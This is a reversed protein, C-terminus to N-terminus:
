ISPPPGTLRAPTKLCPSNAPSDDELFQVDEPKLDPVYTKDHVVQFRVLALSTESHFVEPQQAALPLIALLLSALRRSFTVM